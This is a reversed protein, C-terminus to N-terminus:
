CPTHTAYWVENRAVNVMMEYGGEMHSSDDNNDNNNNNIQDVCRVAISMRLLLRLLLHRCAVTSTTTDTTLSTLLFHCLWMVRVGDDDDGDSFPLDDDDDCCDAPFCLDYYRAVLSRLTNDFIPLIHLLDSAYLNLESCHLYCLGIWANLNSSGHGHRMEDISPFHFCDHNNSKMGHLRISEIGQSLESLAIDRLCSLATMSTLSSTLMSTNTAAKRGSSPVDSAFNNTSSDHQSYVFCCSGDYFVDPTEHQEDERSRNNVYDLFSQALPSEPDDDVDEVPDTM